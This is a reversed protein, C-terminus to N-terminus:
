KENKRRPPPILKSMEFMKCVREDYNIISIKFAKKIENRAYYIHVNFINCHDKWMSRDLIFWLSRDFNSSVKKPLSIMMMADLTIQRASRGSIILVCINHNRSTDLNM